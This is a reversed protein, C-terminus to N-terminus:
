EEKLITEVTLVFTTKEVVDGDQQRAQVRKTFSVPVYKRELINMMIKLLGFFLGVPNEPKFPLEETRPEYHDTV